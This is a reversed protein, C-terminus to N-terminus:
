AIPLVRLHSPARNISTSTLKGGVCMHFTILLSPLKEEKFHVQVPPLAPKASGPTRGVGRAGRM